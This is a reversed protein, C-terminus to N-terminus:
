EKTKETGGASQFINKLAETVNINPKIFELQDLSPAKFPQDSAYYLPSKTKIGLKLGPDYTYSALNWDKRTSVKFPGIGAQAEVFADLALKLTLALLLDLDAKVEFKGKSYHIEIQSALHGDLMATASVKLGGSASAIVADLVISGSISGTIHANAGIYLQSKMTLDLDPKDELPNFTAEIKTNRLEGPGIQYGASLAGEIRAKVGVPGISAGPIPISIGVSFIEYDGKFAKFLEIPKPFELAGKLTVKENEDVIIGGRAIMNDTIQYSIEGEGSFKQAPSMKVKISGKARGKDVQLTGEGSIKGDNYEVKIRGKLGKFTVGTEGWGKLKDGDYTFHVLVPDIIGSPVKFEGDGKYLWKDQGAVKQVTVAVRQDGPLKVAVGGTVDLGKDSLGVTVSANELYGKSTKLSIKGSWGSSVHYEVDGTAEDMGPINATVHGKAVFGEADTSAELSGTAVPKNKPGIEFAVLGSPKFEPSLQFKLSAETVRMGPLGKLKEKPIETTVSLQNDSFEIGLVVGKLLPLTPNITGAGSLGKASDYNLRTITGPSMGKFQFPIKHNPNSIKLFRTNKDVLLPINGAKGAATEIPLGDKAGKGPEVTKIVADITDNGQKPRHLTKLVLGPIKAAEPQGSLDTIGPGKKVQLTITDGPIIIYPETEGSGAGAASKDEVGSKVTYADPNSDEIDNNISKQLLVNDTGPETIKCELSTPIYQEAELVDAKDKDAASGKARFETIKATQPTRGYRAEVYFDVTKKDGKLVLDKVPKEFLKLHSEPGWNNVKGSLPTLNNWTNGPGGLNDNLLHGRIYFSGNKYGRKRLKQWWPNEDVSPGSGYSPNKMRKVRVSGGFGYVLPGYEAVNDKEPDPASDGGAKPAKSLVRRGSRRVSPRGSHGASMVEDSAREAERELRHDEIATPISVASAAAKHLGGQQITHTLEHALLKRGKGTRQDYQGSGFVIDNGVTFARADVAAAAASASAGTHIRVKSFDHGFRSEMYSRTDKDLPEGAAQLVDHVVPPAHLGAAGTVDGAPSMTTKKGPAEPKVMPGAVAKGEGTKPPKGRAADQVAAPKKASAQM